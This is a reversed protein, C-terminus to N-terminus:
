INLADGRQEQYLDVGTFMFTAIQRENFSVGSLDGGSSLLYAGLFIDTTKYHQVLIVEKATAQTQAPSATSSSIKPM